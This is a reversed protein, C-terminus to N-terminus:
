EGVKGLLEMTDMNSLEEATWFRVAEPFAVILLDRCAWENEDFDWRRVM